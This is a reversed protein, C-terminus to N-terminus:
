TAISTKTGRSITPDEGGIITELQKKSLSTFSKITATKATNPNPTTKNKM